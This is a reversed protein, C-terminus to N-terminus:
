KWSDDRVVLPESILLAKPDLWGGDPLQVSTAWGASPLAPSFGVSERNQLTGQIWDPYQSRKEREQYTGETYRISSAFAEIALMLTQNAGGKIGPAGNENRLLLRLLTLGTNALLPAAAWCSYRRMRRIAKWAVRMGQEYKEQGGLENVKSFFATQNLFEEDELPKNLSPVKAIRVIGVQRMTELVHHRDPNKQFYTALTASPEFIYVNLKRLRHSVFLDVPQFSRRGGKRARSALRLLRRAGSPTVMYAWFGLIAQFNVDEPDPRSLHRSFRRDGPTVSTGLFAIDYEAPLEAARVRFLNPFDKDLRVDDEFIVTPYTSTAATQWIREHSDFIAGILDACTGNMTLSPM